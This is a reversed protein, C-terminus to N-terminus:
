LARLSTLELGVRGAPDDLRFGGAKALDPAPGGARYWPQTPLWAALLELKTPALAAHSHIVAMPPVTALGPCATLPRRSRSRADGPHRQDAYRFGWSMRQGPEGSVLLPALAAVHPHAQASATHLALLM